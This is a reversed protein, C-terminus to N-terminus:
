DAYNGNQLNLVGVGNGGIWISGKKDAYIVDYRDFLGNAAGYRYVHEGDMYGFGSGETAYWVRGHKDIEIHDIQNTGFNTNIDYHYTYYRFLEGKYPDDLARREPADFTKKQQAFATSGACCLGAFVIFFPLLKSTGIM